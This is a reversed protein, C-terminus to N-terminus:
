IPIDETLFVSKVQQTRCVAGAVSQDHAVLAQPGVQINPENSFESHYGRLLLMENRFIQVYKYCPM